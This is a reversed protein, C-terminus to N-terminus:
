ASYTKEKKMLFLEQMVKSLNESDNKESPFIIGEWGYKNLFYEIKTIRESHSGIEEHNLLVTVSFQFCKSDKKNFPSITAKKQKKDM